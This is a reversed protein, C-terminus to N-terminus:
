LSSRKTIQDLEAKATAIKNLIDVSKEGLTFVGKLETSQNFNKEVFDSNYVMPQMKTGSKWSVKCTPFAPENAIIRSITTKGTSNAGFVFNFHSLENLLEAPSKFIATEAISISEIM